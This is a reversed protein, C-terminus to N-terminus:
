RKAGKMLRGVKRALRILVMEHPGTPLGRYYALVARALESGAVSVRFAVAVDDAFNDRRPDNASM